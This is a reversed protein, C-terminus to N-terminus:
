QAGGASPAHNVPWAGISKLFQTIKTKAEIFKSINAVPPTKKLEADVFKLTEKVQTESIERITKGEHEGVPIVYDFLDEEQAKARTRGRREQSENEVPPHSQTEDPPFIEGTETNVDEPPPEPPPGPDRASLVAKVQAYIFGIQGSNAPKPDKGLESKLWERAKELTPTDLEGIKKGKAQGFPMIVQDPSQKEKPPQKEAQKKQNKGAKEGGNADEFPRQEEGDRSELLHVKLLVIKLALSYAKAFSKDSTDLAFAAGTSQIFDEPKDANIWKVVIKLDTRYWTVTKGWQNTKEFDKVSFEVIDPLMFVGAEALPLHLAAAVDDHTVAKYGKDNESMKVTENKQVSLVKKQVEVMRQYINKTPQIAVPTTESM